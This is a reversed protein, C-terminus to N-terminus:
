LKRPWLGDEKESKVAEAFLESFVTQRNEYDKYNPWIEEIEHEDRGEDEYFSVEWFNGRIWEWSDEGYQRVAEDMLGEYLWDPFDGVRVRFQKM